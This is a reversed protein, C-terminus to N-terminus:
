QGAEEMCSGSSWCRITLAALAAGAKVNEVLGEKKTLVLDLPVSRTPEEVVQTLLNDNISQLVKRSQTTKTASIVGGHSVPGTNM